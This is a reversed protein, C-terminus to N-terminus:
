GGSVTDALNMIPQMIAMAISGVAVALFVIIIPELLKNLTTIINDVQEDYFDAVKLITSDINATEEWVKIMQVMMPPFLEDWDISEWIKIWQQIDERILLIRQRYVENGVWTAVIDFAWVISVWSSILWSLLRSFKSLILKQSLWGFIPIKLMIKDFLYKGWATKKWIKITLVIVFLIFILLLWYSSLFDSVAILTKTSSPLAEKDEFIELLKPVVQVMMIWIVALVVIIIFSPYIMASKLKWSISSIKEMQNALDLLVTNLKWTKEWSSIIWVESENFSGPYIELCESLTKWWRLENVFVWLIKKLIPNKEQEELVQISKILSMWANTMTALLRYFILKDKVKINQMGVLSTNIKEILSQNEM